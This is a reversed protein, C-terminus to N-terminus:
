ARNNELEAFDEETLGYEDLNKDDLANITAMFGRIAKDDQQQSKRQVSLPAQDRLVTVVISVGEPLVVEESIIPRGDVIKGAFAQYM